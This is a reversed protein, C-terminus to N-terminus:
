VIKKTRVHPPLTRSLRSEAKFFRFSSRPDLNLSEVRKQPFSPPS